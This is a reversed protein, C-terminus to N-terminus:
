RRVKASRPGRTPAKRIRAKAATKKPPPKPGARKAPAPKKAPKKAKATRRAVAFAAESWALFEEPEDYLREPLRWYPMAVARGKMGHYVFQPADEAAYSGATEEDARLYLTDEVVLAFMVAEKFIGLGGFMARISVGGMPEYLEELFDRFGM